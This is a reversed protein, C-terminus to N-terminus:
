EAIGYFTMEAIFAHDSGGPDWTQLIKIRLYRVPETPAPFAFTDGAQAQAIDAATNTGLPEGSPKVSEFNGLLTWTSDWDGNPNPDNSGWIEWKRPSSNAYFLRTPKRQWLIYHDLSATVGMDLTFWHPSGSGKKTEYFTDPNDDWLNTMVYKSSYLAADSPLPFASFKNKDLEIPIAEELKITEYPTYFTDIAFPTPLFLTRYQISDGQPREDIRTIDDSLPVQIEHMMGDNSKYRLEVGIATTDAENYWKIKPKGAILMANEILRNSLTSIYADGYVHGTTDVAISSNGAKDYTYIDFVYSGEEMNDIIVSVTDKISGSKVPVEVSDAGSNWYVRCKVINRNATLLWSLKIRNHGPFVKLSDPKERYVVEGGKLFKKYTADMKSCAPLFCSLGTIIVMLKAIINTKM